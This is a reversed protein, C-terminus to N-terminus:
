AASDLDYNTPHNEPVVQTLFATYCGPCCFQRFVVKIDIYRWSEPFIQPGAMEPADEVLALHELYNEGRACINHGCQNCQLVRGGGADIEVLNDNWHLDQAGYVHQHDAPDAIKAAAGARKARSRRQNRIQKRRENTKKADVGLHADVIV